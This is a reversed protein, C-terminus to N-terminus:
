KRPVFFVLKPLIRTRDDDFSGLRRLPKKILDAKKEVTVYSIIRVGFEALLIKAIAGVGVRSVTERASARELVSRIDKLDYKLAGTLDAHGPRPNLVVPLKDISHDTNSVMMAIPSGITVEKRLGSLIRVKDSEIKMRNGRGHGSMRRLLEIDILRKDVFLGAPVGDLITLMCEGHSEGSTLYRLM